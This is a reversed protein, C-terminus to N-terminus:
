PSKAASRGSRGFAWAIASAILALQWPEYPLAFRAAAITLTYTLLALGVVLLPITMRWGARWAFIFGVLSALQLASRSLQYLINGKPNDWEIWVTKIFRNVCMALYGGPNASIWEKAYRGFIKERQVETKGTLEARQEASLLDYQRLADFTPDRRQADTLGALKARTQEDMRVRDTGTANPNNAKWVNVWFTSKVPMLEGHVRFNRYAWPGLIVLATVFLIAANRFRISWALGPWFLILLGSLAMFPLMVPETLAGLCGLIGYAFWPRVNRTDVSRYFLWITALTCCTIFSIAQVVTVAYIQTPWIAVFLAALLGALATGRLSRVVLYTLLVSAAGLFANIVMAIKHAQELNMSCLWYLSALFLPYPPSQVSTPQVVGWDNFTFGEGRLLYLAISHHEMATPNTWAQLYFIAALRLVLAMLTFIGLWLLISNSAGRDIDAPSSKLPLDTMLPEDGFNTPESM